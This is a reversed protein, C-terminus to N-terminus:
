TISNKENIKNLENFKDGIKLKSLDYGTFLLSDVPAFYAESREGRFKQARVRRNDDFYGGKRNGNEDKYAILDNAKCYELSLQGDDPFLIGIDGEKSELSVVVQYGLINALQLKDANPHKYIRNIKAVICDYSM